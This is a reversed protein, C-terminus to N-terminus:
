CAPGEKSDVKWDGNTDCDQFDKIFMNFFAKWEKLDIAGSNNTDVIRFIDLLESKLM